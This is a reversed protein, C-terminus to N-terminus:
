SSSGGKLCLGLGAVMFEVHGVHRAVLQNARGTLDRFSRAESNDPVIGMGIENSVILLPSTRGKAAELIRHLRSLIAEEGWGITFYYSLWLTLCDVLVCRGSAEHFVTELDMRDEITRWHSPRRERHQRIRERMETDNLAQSAMTAIYSVPLGSDAAMQEARESKGSGSGGLILSLM